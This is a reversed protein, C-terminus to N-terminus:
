DNGLRRKLTGVHREAEKLMRLVEKEVTKTLNELAKLEEMMKNMEKKRQRINAEYKKMAKEVAEKQEEMKKANREGEKITHEMEEDITVIEMAMVLSDDTTTEPADCESCHLLVETGDRAMGMLTRAMKLSIRAWKEQGCTACKFNLLRHKKEPTELTILKIESM